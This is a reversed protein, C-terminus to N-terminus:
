EESKKLTKKTIEIPIDERLLARRSVLTNMYPTIDEPNCYYTQRPKLRITQGTDLTFEVMNRMINTLKVKM